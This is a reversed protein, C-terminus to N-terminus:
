PRQRMLDAKGLPVGASRLIAYAMAVHFFLNPLVYDLVFSWASAFSRQEGPKLVSIPLQTELDLERAALSNVYDRTTQIRARLEAFGREAPDFEREYGRNFVAFEPAMTEAPLRRSVRGLSGRIGSTVIEIQLRLPFMDPALRREILARPETGTRACFQEALTLMQALGDLARVASPVLIDSLSAPM